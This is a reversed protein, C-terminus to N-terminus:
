LTGTTASFFNAGYEQEAIASRVPLGALHLPDTLRELTGVYDHVKVNGVVNLLRFTELCQVTACTEPDITTAPYWGNELLQGLNNTRASKDCGCYEFEITHIGNTHMVVM